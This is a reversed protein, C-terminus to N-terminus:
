VIMITAKKETTSELKATKLGHCYCEGVLQHFGEPHGDAKRLVIPIKVGSAVWIEDGQRTGPPCLGIWGDNAVFLRRPGCSLEVKKTTWDMSELVTYIREKRAPSSTDPKSRFNDLHRVWDTLKADFGTVISRHFADLLSQPQQDHTYPDSTFRSSTLFNRCIHYDKWLCCMEDIVGDSQMSAAKNFLPTGVEAITDVLTASIKLVM